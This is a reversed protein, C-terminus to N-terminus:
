SWQSQHPPPRSSPAVNNGDRRRRRDAGYQEGPGHQVQQGTGPPVVDAGAPSRAAAPASRPPRAEGRRKRPEPLFSPVDNRQQLLGAPARASSAEPAKRLLELAEGAVVVASCFFYAKGSTATTSSTVLSRGSSVQSVCNSIFAFLLLQVPLDEHAAFARVSPGDRQELFGLQELLRRATASSSSGVPGPSIKSRPACNFGSGSCGKCNAVAPPGLRRRGRRGRGTGAAGVAAAGAALGHGGFGAGAGALGPAGAGADPCRTRCRCWGLGRVVVPWGRCGVAFPRWSRPSRQKVRGPLADPLAQENGDDRDRQGDHQHRQPRQVPM